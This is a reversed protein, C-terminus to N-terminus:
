SSVRARADEELMRDVIDPLEGVTTVVHTPTPDGDGLAKGTPNM